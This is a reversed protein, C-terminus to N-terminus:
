RQTLIKVCKPDHCHTLWSAKREAWCKCVATGKTVEKLKFACVPKDHECVHNRTVDKVRYMVGDKVTVLVNPVGLVQHISTESRDHHGDPGTWAQTVFVVDDCSRRWVHPGRENAPVVRPQGSPRFIKEHSLHLRPIHPSRFSRPLSRRRLTKKTSGSVNVFTNKITAQYASTNQFIDKHLTM